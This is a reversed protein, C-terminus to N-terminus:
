ADSMPVLPSVWPSQGGEFCAMGVMVDESQGGPTTAGTGTGAGVFGGYGPGPLLPSCGPPWGGASPDLPSPTGGATAGAGGASPTGAPVAAPWM